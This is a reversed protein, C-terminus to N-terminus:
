EGCDGYGRFVEVGGLGKCCSQRGQSEGDHEVDGPAVDQGGAKAGDKSYVRSVDEHHGEVDGHRGGGEEAGGEERDEVEGEGAVEMGRDEYDGDRGDDREDGADEEVTEEKGDDVDLM